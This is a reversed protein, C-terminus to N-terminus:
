GNKNDWNGSTQCMQRLGKRAKESHVAPGKNPLCSPTTQETQAALLAEKGQPRCRSRPRLVLYYLSANGRSLIGRLTTGKVTRAM